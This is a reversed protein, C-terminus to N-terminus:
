CGATPTQRRQELRDFGLLPRRSRQGIAQPRRAKGVDDALIVEDAGIARQGPDEGRPRDAREDEPTRRAAALRGDRAEEGLTGIEMELLQGRDEGADGVELLDERRRSGAALAPLAAKEEDVLDMAEVAGLLIGEQRHDLVTRDAEDAGRSLVRGESFAASRERARTSM